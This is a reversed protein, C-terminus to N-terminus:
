IFKENKNLTVVDYRVWGYKGDLMKVYYWKRRQDDYKQDKVVGVASPWKITAVINNILGNNVVPENRVNAYDHKSTNRPYITKGPYTYESGNSDSKNNNTKALLPKLFKNYFDRNRKTLEKGGAYRKYNQSATKWDKKVVATTFKPFKSLGGLNFAFDTLMALQTSDLTAGPFNSKIYTKVKSEATKLDNKLYKEAKSEPWKIGPKVDPGTHGYGITWVGVSDKYAKHLGTTDKVAGEQDKIYAIYDPDDIIAETILHKLRIM